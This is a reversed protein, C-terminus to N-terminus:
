DELNTLRENIAELAQAIPALEAAFIESIGEAPGSGDSTRVAAELAKLLGGEAM